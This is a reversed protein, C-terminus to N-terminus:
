LDREIRKLQDEDARAGDFAVLEDNANVGARYAVRGAYVETVVLRGDPQKKTKWGFEARAPIESKVDDGGDSEKEDDSKDPKEGLELGVSALLAAFDPTEVGRVYRDFFAKEDKGTVRQVAKEYTGEPYGVGKQGHEEW